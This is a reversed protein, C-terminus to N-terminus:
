ITNRDDRARMPMCIYMIPRQPQASAGRPIFPIYKSYMHTHFATAVPAGEWRKTRNASALVFGHITGNPWSRRFHRADGRPELNMTYRFRSFMLRSDAAHLHEGNEVTKALRCSGHSQSSKRSCSSVIFPHAPRWPRAQTHIYVNDTGRHAPLHFCGARHLYSDM